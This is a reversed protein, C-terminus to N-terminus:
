ILYLGWVLIYVGWFDAAALPSGENISDFLILRFDGLSFAIRFLFDM